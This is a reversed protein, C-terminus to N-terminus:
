PFLSCTLKFEEYDTIDVTDEDLGKLSALKEAEKNGGEVPSEDVQGVIETETASNVLTNGTENDHSLSPLLPEVKEIGNDTTVPHLEDKVSTSKERGWIQVTLKKRIQSGEGVYKDFWRLVDPLKLNPDQLVAAELKRSNFIYRNEWIQEWLRDGEEGLSYDKHQKQLILAERHNEFEDEDMNALDQRFQRLFVEMRAQLYPPTYEASQVRMCFGLVRYTVRVGCDVRYGLQEKTRLQDYIPEFMIQEVLDLLARDGISPEGLDQPGQFYMEVVSNEEAQNKVPAELLLNKGKPLSIVRDRPKKGPPLGGNPLSSSVVEGLSLAEERTMNGHVLAEVFIENFLQPIFEQLEEPGFDLLHKLKDEVKWAKEKLVCLRLYSSQKLPKMNTNRYTRALEEKIVQFRDPKVTFNKLEGFIKGALASLKDSFGSIKVEISNGSVSTSSELKAVNALYVTENLSDDLLKVFLEALTASRSSNNAVASVINFYANVRPTKFVSDLQYWLKLFHTEYIVQPELFGGVDPKNENKGVSLVARESDEGTGKEETEKEQASKGEGKTEKELGNRGEFGNSEGVKVVVGDEIKQECRLTFDHPIFDNEPPMHLAPDIVHPTAWSELLELSLPNVTYPVAFWPEQKVEEGTREFNKTVIDVRMKLPNLENLIKQVLQPDWQDYVYDGFIIDKPSYLLMNSALRVTYNEASEEEAFRFEMESIAQLEKFVWEQLGVKQLMAIYQYILGIVDMVQELGSETLNITTAFVYLLSSREYGSEGVGASLGTALGQSKLLALLSGAGEHGILHSIYDHPKKRYDKDLCPLPWSVTLQHQEKVSEVHHVVGEEWLKANTNLDVKGGSGSPVKGFIEHVWEELVDLSEGGLVALKMAPGKYHKLYLAMLKARMDVGSKAAEESLSKRNGWSFKHFLHDPHATSCQLQQLRCSDSQLVQQFESDVAQVEREMADEKALPAIFFQAFRDLAPKLHTHSIDFHFCTYETETFANSSGGHKSLYADYDNEDPYKVSGMFLMHELFHALGQADEPDSFSGVGVCLAAAAKKSGGANGTRRGEGDNEDEDEDEDEDDDDEDDDEESGEEDSVDEEEEEEEEIRRGRRIGRKGITAVATGRTVKGKQKSKGIEVSSLHNVEDEESVTEWESEEDDEEESEDEEVKDRQEGEGEGEAGKDKDCGDLLKAGIDPDHVLLAQLGNPLEILRYLKKDEVSKVVEVIEGTKTEAETDLAMTARAVVQRSEQGSFVEASFKTQIKSGRQGELNSSTRSSLKLPSIDAICFSRSVLTRSPPVRTAFFPTTSFSNNGFWM